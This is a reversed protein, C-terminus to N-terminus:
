ASFDTALWEAILRREKDPVFWAPEERLLLERPVFWREHVACCITLPRDDALADFRLRRPNRGGTLLRTTEAAAAERGRLIEVVPEKDLSPNAIDCDHSTVILSDSPRNPTVAPAHEAAQPSLTEGLVAGQRWGLAVIRGSDFPERM